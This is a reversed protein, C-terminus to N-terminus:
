KSKRKILKQNYIKGLYLTPELKLIDSIESFPRSFPISIQLKIGTKNARIPMQRTATSEVYSNVKVLYCKHPTKRLYELLLERSEFKVETADYRIVIEM